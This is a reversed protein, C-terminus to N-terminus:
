KSQEKLAKIRQGIVAWDEATMDASITGIIPVNYIQLWLELAQTVVWSVSRGHAEKAQFVRDKLDDSVYANIAAM